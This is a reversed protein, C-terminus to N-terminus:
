SSATTPLSSVITNLWDEAIYHYAAETLHVGDWFLHTSPDECTTAAEDGCAVSLNYHYRGRGGCCVRLVDDKNIGAVVAYNFEDVEAINVVARNELGFKEPAKVMEMVHNFLDTHIITVDPHEARLKQVADRLLSNHLKVIENPEKLCGTTADYESADADEFAVLIPPACGSPIMGPVVLTKAGHEIVRHMYASEFHCYHCSCCSSDLPRAEAGMSITQILDPVFARIEQMSKKGFSYHYDNIGFEGVFFLSRGFFDKCEQDTQCLSPKLEEFWGLQVELSTNLPFPSAGPPDGIHFFSSNLATAGGVAFNAGQQFSGKHSLYPPVLPLGLGQAIFDIILRGNCNRGTPHGGFSTMGYPPRMVVDFVNYWGFVIPNNGTDTFSDGFAFISDFLGGGHLSAAEASPHLIALAVAMLAALVLRGGSGM